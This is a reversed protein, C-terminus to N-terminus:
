ATGVSSSLLSAVHERVRQMAKAAAVYTIGLASSIQRPGLDQKMLVLIHRERESLHTTLQSFMVELEADALSQDFDSGALWVLDGFKKVGLEQGPHSRLWEYVKGNLAARAYNRFTEIESRKTHMSAAVSEAFGALIADDIRSFRQVCSQFAEMVAVRIEGELPDGQRDVLHLMTIPM